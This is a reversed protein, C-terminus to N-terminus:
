FSCVSRESNNFFNSFNSNLILPSRKGSNEYYNFIGKQIQNRYQYGMTLKGVGISKEYDIKLRYANLPNEGTNLTYQLTDSYNKVNM